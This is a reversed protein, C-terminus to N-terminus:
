AILSEGASVKAKEDKCLSVVGVYRNLIYAHTYVPHGM